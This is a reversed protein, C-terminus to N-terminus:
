VVSVCVNASRDNARGIHGGCISRKRTTLRRRWPEAKLHGMTPLFYCPRLSGDVEIVTSLHPANCRVVPSRATEDYLARFYAIMQRLKDPSEAIRHSVFDEAFRVEIEALLRELHLVDDPLKLRDAASNNLLSSARDLPM